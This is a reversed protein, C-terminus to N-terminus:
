GNQTGNEPPNTFEIVAQVTGSDLVLVGILFAGRERESDLDNALCRLMDAQTDDVRPTYHRVIVPVDHGIEPM